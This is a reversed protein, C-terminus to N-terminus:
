IKFFDLLGEIVEQKVLTDTSYFGVLYRLSQVRIQISKSYDNEYEKLLNLIPREDSKDFKIPLMQSYGNKQISDFDDKLNKLLLSNQSRVLMPFILIAILIVRTIFIARM